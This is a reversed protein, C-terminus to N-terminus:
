HGGDYRIFREDVRVRPNFGRQRELFDEFWDVRIDGNVGVSMVAKKPLRIDTWILPLTANHAESSWSLLRSYEAPPLLDPFPNHEDSRVKAGPFRLVILACMEQFSKVKGGQSAQVERIRYSLELFAEKM